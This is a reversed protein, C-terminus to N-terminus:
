WRYQLVMHVHVMSWRGDINYVMHRVITPGLGVVMSRRGALLSTFTNRALEPSDHETRFPGGVKIAEQSTM